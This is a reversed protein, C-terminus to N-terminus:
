QNMGPMPPLPPMPIGQEQADITQEEMIVRQLEPDISPFDMEPSATRVPRAPVTRTFAAARPDVSAGSGAAGPLVNAGSRLGSRLPTASRGARPPSPTLARAGRSSGARQAPVPIVRRAGGTAGPAPVGGTAPGMPTPADDELTLVVREGANDVTVSGEPQNISIVKIDGQEGNEELKWYVENTTKGPTPPVVFWAHKGDPTVSIGSLQLNLKVPPPNTVPPPAAVAPPPPDKLSFPNRDLILEYRTSESSVVEAWGWGTQLLALVGFVRLMQRARVARIYYM